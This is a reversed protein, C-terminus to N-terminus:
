IKCSASFFKNQPTYRIESTNADIKRLQFGQKRYFNDLQDKTLLQGIPVPADPLYTRAHGWLQIQYKDALTKLFKILRAAAGQNPQLTEFKAIEIQNEAWNLLAIAQGFQRFEHIHFIKGVPHNKHHPTTGREWEQRACQLPTMENNKAAPM